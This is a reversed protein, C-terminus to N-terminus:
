LGRGSGCWFSVLIDVNNM